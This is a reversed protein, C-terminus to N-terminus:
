ILAIQGPKKTTKNSKNFIGEGKGLEVEVRSDILHSLRQTLFFVGVVVAM